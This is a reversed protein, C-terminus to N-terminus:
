VTIRLVIDEVGEQCFCTPSSSLNQVGLEVWSGSPAKFSTKSHLVGEQCSNEADCWKIVLPHITDIVHIVIRPHMFRLPLHRLCASRDILLSPDQSANFRRMLYEHGAPPKDVLVGIIRSLVSRRELAGFVDVLNVSPDVMRVFSGGNLSSFVSMRVSVGSKCMPALEESVVHPLGLASVSTSFERICGDRRDWGKVSVSVRVSQLVWEKSSESVSKGWM